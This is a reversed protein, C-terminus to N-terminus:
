AEPTNSLKINEMYKRLTSNTGFVYPEKTYINNRLFSQYKAITAPSQSMSELFSKVNMARQYRANKKNKRTNRNSSIRQEIYLSLLSPVFFYINPSTYLINLDTTEWLPINL